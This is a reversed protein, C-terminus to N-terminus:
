KRAQLVEAMAAQVDRENADEVVTVKGVSEPIVFRLKHGVRKKDHAMAAYLAIPDIGRLTTPLGLKGVLRTLREVLSDDCRGLRASLHAAMIMGLAVAEGHRTEFGTALEVAHGFTHGLNLLEREKREHPDCEVINVKVRVADEVLQRSTPEIDDELWEFLGPAGIVAHKLVEAMGNCFEERPLTGIVDPDVIVLEPQKFAGVLNKGQPLDVGTKGGISADVMALVSTPVQVVRIGRLYTAAAFGAVDGVVGGGLAVVVSHRDLGAELWEGYLREVTRLTKFKEGEPILCTVVEAGTARLSAELQPLHHKAIRSHSVIAMTSSNIRRRQMLSGAAELLGQRICIDYSPELGVRIRTMNACEQHSELQELVRDCAAEVTLHSTDVQLPVSCYVPWRSRLLARVRGALDGALLPRHSSGHLRRVISPVSARLLVLTGSRALNERNKLALLIGGGTAVVLDRERSLELCLEKEQARFVHEGLSGFIESVSAGLREEIVQDTDVFRRGLRAALRRGVATKGTGMFGCLIVNAAM